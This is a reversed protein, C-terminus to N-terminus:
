LNAHLEWLVRATVNWSFTRSRDQAFVSLRERETPDNNLRSLIAAFEDASEAAVGADFALETCAACEAHVIPLGAALAGLVEYGSGILRQPVALLEAGSIAAGFDALERPEIIHVRHRIAAPVNRSASVAATAPSRDAASSPSSNASTESTASDAPMEADTSGATPAATAAVASTASTASAVAASVATASSAHEDASPDAALDKLVVLPPLSADAELAEYLWSLRGNDCATATTLFYRDPLGLEARRSASDDAALYSRPAAVPVVQVTVDDGYRENIAEATAHTTTVIVDAYKVARKAFARYQRAASAGMHDPALWSLAHPITVSTQSGDDEDHSRVPVLPTMAHVLEGDLPRAALGSRWLKPLLSSRLPLREVRARATAFEPADREAGILLRASCGRPATDAIAQTLERLAEAHAVAEGDPFPEGILTLTAM